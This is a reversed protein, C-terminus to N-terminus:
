NTSQADCHDESATINDLIDEFTHVFAPVSFQRIRAISAAGLSRARAPNHLLMLLHDALQATNGADYYLAEIGERAVDTAGSRKTSICPLGAAMAEMMANPMGEFDSPMVFIDSAALMERVAGTRGVFVMNMMAHAAAAAKVEALMPGDGCLLWVVAAAGSHALLLRNADVLSLQGKEKSFRGVNIIVVASDAIGYAARVQRRAHAAAEPSLDSLDVGNPCVAIRAAAVGAWAAYDAQVGTSNTIFQSVYPWMRRHARLLLRGMAAGAWGYTPNFTRICFVIHPVRALSAALFTTVCIEHGWGVVVAPRESRFDRVLKFVQVLHSSRKNRDTVMRGLWRAVSGGNTYREPDLTVGRRYLFNLEPFIETAHHSYRAVDSTCLYKIQAQTGGLDFSSTVHLVRGAVARGDQRGRFRRLLHGHTWLRDRLLDHCTWLASWM